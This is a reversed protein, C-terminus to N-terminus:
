TGPWGLVPTAHDGTESVLGLGDGMEVWGLVPGLLIGCLLYVVIAPMRVARGLAVLIAASVAIISMQQLFSLDSM